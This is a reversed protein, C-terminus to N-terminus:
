GKHEHKITNKHEHLGEVMSLMQTWLQATGISLSLLSNIYVKSYESPAEIGNASYNKSWVTQSVSMDNVKVKTLMVSDPRPDCYAPRMSISFRQVVILLVQEKRHGDWRAWRLMSELTYRPWDSYEQLILKIAAIPMNDHLLHILKCNLYLWWPCGVVSSSSHFNISEKKWRDWGYRPTEVMDHLSSM